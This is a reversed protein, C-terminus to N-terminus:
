LILIMFTRGLIRCSRVWLAALNSNINFKLKTSVFEEIRRIWPRGPVFVHNDFSIDFFDFTTM